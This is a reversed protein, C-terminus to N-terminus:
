MCKNTGIVSANSVKELIIKRSESEEPHVPNQNEAAKVFSCKQSDKDFLAFHCKVNSSCMLACSFEDHVQAAITFDEEEDLNEQSSIKFYSSRFLEIQVSLLSPLLIVYIQIFLTM